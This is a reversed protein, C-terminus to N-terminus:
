GRALGVMTCIDFLVVYYGCCYFLSSSNCHLIETYVRILKHGDVIALFHSQVKDFIATGKKTEKKELRGQANLKQIVLHDLVQLM